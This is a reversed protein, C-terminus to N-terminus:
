FYEDKLNNRRVIDFYIDQIKKTLQGLKGDGVPYNDVGNGKASRREKLWAPEKALIVGIM